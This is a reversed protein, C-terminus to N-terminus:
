RVVRYRLHTAQPTQIMGCHELEIRATGLQDFLRLGEVLLVPAIHIYIEDVLGTKLVGQALRAGGMVWVNKDGAVAKAQAVASALGDTVFTFGDVVTEPVTKSVVFAPMDFPNAGDWANEIATSYTFGGVLVAGMEDVVGKSVDRDVNTQAGFMWDHVRLGGRGMPQDASIDPGAIFGDLSMTIDLVVKSM